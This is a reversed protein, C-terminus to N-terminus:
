RCPQSSPRERSPPWACWSGTARAFQARIAEVNILIEDHPSPKGEALTAWIDKGDFPHDGIGKRRRAGASHAHHGVMHLPENVVRAQAQGALQRIAPVRVGGEYLSGKGRAFAATPRRRSRAWRWAAARRATRRPARGHRFRANTVGGNDSAFLIITNERLGKKDLAAVVRGVQDDLATIM